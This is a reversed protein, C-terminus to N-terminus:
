PNNVFGQGCFEEWEIAHTEGLPDNPFWLHYEEHASLGALTTGGVGAFGPDSIWVAGTEYSGGSWSQDYQEYSNYFYFESRNREYAGSGLQRCMPDSHSKLHGIARNLM